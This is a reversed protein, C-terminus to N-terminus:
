DPPTLTRTGFSLSELVVTVVVATLVRVEEGAVLTQADTQRRLGAAQAAVAGLFTRRAQFREVQELYPAPPTVPAVAAAQQM